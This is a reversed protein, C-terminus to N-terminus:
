ILEYMVSCQVLTDAFDGRAKLNLAQGIGLDFGDGFSQRAVPNAPTLREFLFGSTNQLLTLAVGSPLAPVAGAAAANGLMFLYSKLRVRKNAVGAILTASPGIGPNVIATATQTNVLLPTFGAIFQTDPSDPVTDLLTLTAADGQQTSVQSAPGAADYTLSTVSAAAPDIRKVWRMTYPSVRYSASGITLTLWSGSPNDILVGRIMRGADAGSFATVGLNVGLTTAVIQKRPKPTYDQGNADTVGAESTDRDDYLTVTIPDGLSVSQTGDPGNAAFDVTVNAVLWSFVRAFAISYPRVYENTTRLILWAGTPNDIRVSRTLGSQLSAAVISSGPLATFVQRVRCGQRREHRGM